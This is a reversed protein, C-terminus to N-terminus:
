QDCSGMLVINQSYTGAPLTSPTTVSFDIPHYSGDGSLLSRYAPSQTFLSYAQLENPVTWETSAWKTSMDSIWTSGLYWGGFASAGAGFDDFYVKVNMNTTPGVGGGVLVGTTGSNKVYLTGTGSNLNIASISETAGNVVSLACTAPAYQSTFSATVDVAGVLGASMVLALMVALAKGIEKL